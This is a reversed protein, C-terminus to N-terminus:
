QCFTANTESVKKNRVIANDSSFLSYLEQPSFLIVANCLSYWSLPFDNKLAFDSDIYSETEFPLM